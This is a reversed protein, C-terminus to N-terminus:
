QKLKIFENDNFPIRYLENNFVIYNKYIVYLPKNLLRDYYFNKYKNLIKFYIQIYKNFM